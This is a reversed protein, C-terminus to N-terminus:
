KPVACPVCMDAHGGGQAPTSVALAFHALRAVSDKFCGLVAQLAVITKSRSDQGGFLCGVHVMAVHCPTWCRRPGRSMRAPGRPPGFRPLAGLRPLRKM